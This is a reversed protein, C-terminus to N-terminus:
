QERSGSVTDSLLSSCSGWEMNGAKGREGEREKGGERARMEEERNLRGRLEAV